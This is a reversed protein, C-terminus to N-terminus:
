MSKTSTYTYEIHINYFLDYNQGEVHRYAGRYIYVPQADTPPSPLKNPPWFPFPWRLSSCPLLINTYYTYTHLYHITHIHTYTFQMTCTIYCWCTRILTSERDYVRIIHYKIHCIIYKNERTCIYICTSSSHLARIFSTNASFLASIILIICSLFLPSIPPGSYPPILGFIYYM